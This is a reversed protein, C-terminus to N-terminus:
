LADEMKVKRVRVVPCYQNSNIADEVRTMRQTNLTVLEVLATSIQEYNKVLLVNSEYMAKMADFKQDAASQNARIIQQDKWYIFVLLGLPGLAQLIQALTALEKLGDM